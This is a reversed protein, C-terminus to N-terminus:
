PQAPVAAPTPAPRSAADAVGAAAPGRSEVPARNVPQGCGACVLAGLLPLVLPWRRNTMPDAATVPEACPM